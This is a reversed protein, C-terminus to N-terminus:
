VLMLLVFPLVSLQQVYNCPTRTHAHTDTCQLSVSGFQGASSMFFGDPVTSDQYNVVSINLHFEAEVHGFTLVVGIFLQRSTDADGFITVGSIFVHCRFLVRKVIISKYFLYKKCECRKVERGDTCTPKQTVRSESWCRSIQLWIKRFPLNCDSVQFAPPAEFHLACHDQSRFGSRMCCVLEAHGKFFACNVWCRRLDIYNGDRKEVQVQASHIALRRIKASLDYGPM